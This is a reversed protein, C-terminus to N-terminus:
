RGNLISQIIRARERETEARLVRDEEIDFYRRGDIWTQAASTSTSLPHGSWIVFDADKGPELSGVRNDIGLVRATNITVLALADQEGIGTRLMKAAEWNMRSAIQSNDSHLSTLVGADKLIRANYVTADYAEIKFSSWDSWVVAAAGHRAIEPAVKYAEVGHHFARVRFDFEEALRLLMLMEDQRYAHSHVAIEGNLIEAVAELRLDRRPPVGRKNGREWARWSQEYERAASFHDRIIQETGMRTDPYRGSRRKPNEGLAFKVTRPAGELALDDPLAGWRLKVFANQGGIPNASGHMVHASTLGGALQRYMWINDLTLGDGTRVEPVIASGTENVGGGVGSHLHADILGPTVHKGSGDIVTAGAPAQLNRGVRVIRGRRVLLDANDLTGEPGMTWITANRVLLQEPQAPISQRGFDMGPRVDALSPRVAGATGAGAGGAGAGNDGDGNGGDGGSANTGVPAFEGIRDGRWNIRTGDPLEGWGHLENGSVTASLRVAGDHGIAAGPFAVTLRRAEGALSASGLRVEQGDVTITGNLRSPTGALSLEGQLRAGGTATVTWRGRPEVGPQRNIEFRRGDVWVDHITASDVFLDGDAVVLNAAKGPELTGHTRSIGLYRAPTTTLAALAVEPSLGRQVARRLNPVFDRRRALGDSTLAFEVGAAALRAPNEPALHWHRLNALSVNLAEEPRKINPTDPYALPLILPVKHTRIADLLRYESGSGRIWVSLPFEDAFRMVRLFDEESRTEIVVPQRGRVAVGLAALAANAEPRQAGRPNREYAAHARQHWDADHLTQRIFAIAGMSSTPYVADIERDRTLSLAQAVGSRVVRDAVPASSLSMAATQGRFMGLQPVAMAVTFGQARLEGTRADDGAFVATADLSSRVQANWYGAGRGEDADPEGPMGVDSYADIFGPYLTRGGMSWVRADAPATVNTGVAEIKGERIVLTANELVRGPAVVIRAGTFAHVAPTNDRLGEVPATQAGALAPSFALLCLALAIRIRM